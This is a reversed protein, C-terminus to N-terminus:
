DLDVLARVLSSNMTLIRKMMGKGTILLIHDFGIERSFKLDTVSSRPMVEWKGSIYRLHIETRSIGIRSPIDVSMRGLVIYAMMALLVLSLVVLLLTHASEGATRDIELVIYGILPFLLAIPLGLLFVHPASNRYWEISNQDKPPNSTM